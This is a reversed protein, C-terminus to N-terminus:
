FYQSINTMMLSLELSGPWLYMQDGDTKDMGEKSLADVLNTKNVRIYDVSMGWDSSDRSKDFIAPSTRKANKPSKTSLGKQEQHLVIAFMELFNKSPRGKALINIEKRFSTKPLSSSSTGKAQNAHDKSTYCKSIWLIHQIKDMNLVITSLPLTTKQTTSRHKVGHSKKHTM